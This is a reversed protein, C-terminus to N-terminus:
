TSHLATPEDTTHRVAGNESNSSPDIQLQDQAQAPTGQAPPTQPAPPQEAAGGTPLPQNADSSAVSDNEASVAAQRAVARADEEASPPPLQQTGLSALNVVSPDDRLKVYLQGDTPHPVPLSFGPFGDPVRMPHDFQANGSVSAVLYLSSGSLKCALEPTSPCILGTLVPLRVLTALPQWDGTGGKALMRFQLPGFASSGFAKAPDLTAGAVKTNELTIGGNGVSLTTSFSDDATAVEIQVDRAFKRPTQARISFMLKADQPLEDQNTLRINSVSSSASAQVSKGIIKVSPRPEDVSANLTIVRGDHLTVKAIATTGQQLAAAARADQAVVPMEDQSGGTSLTGPIFEIGMMVLKAVEDLRSGSLIGQTDGAHIVFRQLHAVESFTHIQVSQPQGAGYQRVILTMAGPKAQQLPLKVELENPTVTKWDVKLEKGDPDELMVTNICSAREAQLHVTDERGVILTGADKAAMELTQARANVLEFEPGVYKDFGWYGHL